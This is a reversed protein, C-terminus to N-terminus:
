GTLAVNMFYMLNNLGQRLAPAKHLSATCRNDTACFKVEYRGGGLTDSTQEETLFHGGGLNEASAGSTEWMEEGIFFGGHLVRGQFKHM